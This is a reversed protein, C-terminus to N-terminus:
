ARRRRARTEEVRAGLWVAPLVAAVIVLVPFPVQAVTRDLQNHWADRVSARQEPDITPSGSPFDEVVYESLPSFDLEAVIQQGFKLKLGGCDAIGSAEGNGKMSGVLVSASAAGDKSHRRTLLVHAAAFKKPGDLARLLPRDSAGQLAILQSAPSGPAPEALLKIISTYHTHADYDWAGQWRIDENRLRKVCAWAKAELDTWPASPPTTVVIMGNRSVFTYRAHLTSFGFRGARHYSRVWGAIIAIALLISAGAMISLRRRKM